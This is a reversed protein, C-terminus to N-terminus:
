ELVALLLAVVQLAVFVAIIGLARQSTLWSSPTRRRKFDHNIM